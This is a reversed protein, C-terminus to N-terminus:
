DTLTVTTVGTRRDITFLAECYENIEDQPTPDDACNCGAVMGTYFLGAHIIYDDGVQRAKLITASLAHNLAISSQRLGQQLPLADVPLSRLEENFVQKLGAQDWAKRTNELTIPTKV